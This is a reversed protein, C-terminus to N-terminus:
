MWSMESGPWSCAAIRREPRTCARMTRMSAHLQGPLSIDHIYRTKGNAKEPADMKAIRQGILSPAKAALAQTM